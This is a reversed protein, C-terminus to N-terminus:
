DTQVMGPHREPERAQRARPKRAAHGEASSKRAHHWRCLAQLNEYSHDDGPEVHDVQNAPDGCKVGVSDRAQCKYGDRRLVRVRRIAWDDPLRAKRDSTEWGM